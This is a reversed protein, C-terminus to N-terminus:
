SSAKRTSNASRTPTIAGTVILSDGKFTAERIGVEEAFKIAVEIAKAEAEVARSLGIGKKSLAAIVLSACDHIIVGFGM